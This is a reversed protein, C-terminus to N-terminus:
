HRRAVDLQFLVYQRGQCWHVLPFKHIYVKQTVLKISRDIQTRKKRMSM